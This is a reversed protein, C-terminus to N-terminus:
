AHGLRGDRRGVTVLRNTLWGGVALGALGTVVLLPVAWTSADHVGAADRLVEASWTLFVLRCIPQVWQPYLEIPVLVGGLLFLPFSLSNQFTRASRALLYLPALVSGWSAMALVTLLLGVAFPAPHEPVAPTGILAWGVLWCEVFGLAGVASTVVVRGLILGFLPAPTALLPELTGAQREVELAEGASFLTMTWMTMLGPAIIAATSLDRRGAADVIAVLVLASVPAAALAILQQPSRRLLALQFRGGTAATSATVTLSV